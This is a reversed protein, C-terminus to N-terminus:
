KLTVGKAGHRHFPHDKYCGKKACVHWGRGCQEGDGADTCGKKCNYGFCIADNNDTFGVGDPLLERPVPPRWPQNNNKGKNRGAGKGKAKAGKNKDDGKGKTKVTKRKPTRSRQGGRKPLPTLLMSFRPDLLITDVLGDMKPAGAGQIGTRTMQGALEFFM